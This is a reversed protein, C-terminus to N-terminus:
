ADEQLDAIQVGALPMPAAYTGRCFVLPMRESHSFAEVRGVFIMHDGGEYRFETRCQFCAAVDRLLPVGGIGAEIALDAFRDPGPTSFRSSLAVQDAALVNVAFHSADHYIGLNYSRRSLSWLVLPPDLSVSNFSSVTLGTPEGCPSTTTIIAVGTAFTSLARRFSQVHNLPATAQQALPAGAITRKPSSEQM